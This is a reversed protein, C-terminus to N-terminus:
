LLDWNGAESMVIVGSAPEVDHTIILARTRASVLVSLLRGDATVIDVFSGATAAAGEIRGRLEEVNQTLPLLVSTGDVILEIQRM